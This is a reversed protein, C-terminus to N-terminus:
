KKECTTLASHKSNKLNGYHSSVVTSYLIDINLKKGCCPCKVLYGETRDLKTKFIIQCSMNPFLFQVWIGCGCACFRQQM